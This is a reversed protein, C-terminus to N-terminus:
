ATLLAVRHRFGPERGSSPHPHVVRICMYSCDGTAVVGDASHVARETSRVEIRRLPGLTASCRQLASPCSSDGARLICGCMDRGKWRVSKGTCVSWRLRRPMMMRNSKVCRERRPEDDLANKGKAAPKRKADSSATSDRFNKRPTRNEPANEKNAGDLEMDDM